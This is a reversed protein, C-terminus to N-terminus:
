HYDARAIVGSVGGTFTVYVPRILVDPFAVACRGAYSFRATTANRTCRRQSGHVVACAKYRRRNARTSAYDHM